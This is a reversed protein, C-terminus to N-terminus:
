IRIFSVLVIKCPYHRIYPCRTLDHLCNIPLLDYVIQCFVSKQNKNMQRIPSLVKKLIQSENFTGIRGNLENMLHNKQYNQM